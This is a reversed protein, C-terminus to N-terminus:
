VGITWSSVLEDTELGVRIIINDGTQKASNDGLPVQATLHKAAAEILFPRFTQTEEGRTAGELPTSAHARM